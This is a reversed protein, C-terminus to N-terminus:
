GDDIPGLGTTTSHSTYDLETTDQLLLVLGLQDLITRTQQFHPAILASYTVDPENLLRYAAKLGALSDLQQPLSANPQRVLATAVRVARKTRRKDGLKVQGFTQFAWQAPSFFSTQLM